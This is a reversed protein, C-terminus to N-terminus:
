ELAAKSRLTRKRVNEAGVQKKAVTKNVGKHKKPDKHSMRTKDRMGEGGEWFAGSGHVSKVPSEGCVCPKDSVTQERSCHGCVMRKAFESEHDEKDDHCLHCAYIKSCCPFRFWRRSKKYHDCAGKRPLPDGVKLEFDLGGNKLNGGRILKKKLPLQELTLASAKMLDGPSLKVFKIEGELTMTMRVHCKRCNATASMGRGIRQRFGTPAHQQQQHHSTSDATTEAPHHDTVAGHVTDCEGCTPVFASPLLDFATCGALDIYGLTRSQMHIYETRFHAGLLSQCNDCTRWKRTDGGSKSASTSPPIGGGEQPVLDPIEFLGKCRNCRVLLNLSRCYLLLIHELKLEPMRIEIGRKPPASADTSTTGQGQGTNGPADDESEVDSESEDDNNDSGSVRDESDDEEEGDNDEDEDSSTMAGQDEADFNRPKQPQPSNVYVVKPNRDPKFPEYFSSAPKNTPEVTITAAPSSSSSSEPEAKLTMNAMAQVVPSPAEPKPLSMLDKLDRNLQNLLQFLSHQPMAAVTKRFGAEVNRARWLEIEPNHGDEKLRVECPELPYINPVLLNIWLPGEWVVPMQSKNASELSIQIETPTITQISSRFRAQIQAMQQQRQLSAQDLQSITYVPKRVVPTSSVPKTLPPTQVAPAPTVKVATPPPPTPPLAPPLVPAPSINNKSNHNSQYSNNAHGVFRITPAPPKQLLQEMNVDLWNLHQLLSKPPQQRAATDFGRELNTSFGKPITSNLVTLSPASEPYDLPVQLRVHLSEIEYPFDPDSPIIKLEFADHNELTISAPTSSTTSVSKFSSVFRSQVQSIEFARLQAKAQAQDTASDLNQLAKPVPKRVPARNAPPARRPNSIRSTNSTAAEPVVATTNTTAPASPASSRTKHTSPPFEATSSTPGQIHAFRCSAGNRCGKKTAFFQCPALSSTSSPSSSM